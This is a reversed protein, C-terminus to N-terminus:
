LIQIKLYIFHHMKNFYIIVNFYLFKMNNNMKSFCLFISFHVDANRFKREPVSVPNKINKRQTIIRLVLFLVCQQIELVCLVIIRPKNENAFVEGRKQVNYPCLAACAAILSSKRTRLNGLLIANQWGLKKQHLCGAVRIIEVKEQFDM